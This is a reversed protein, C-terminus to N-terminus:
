TPSLVYKTKITLVSLISCSMFFYNFYLLCIRYLYYYLYLVSVRIYQFQISLYLIKFVIYCSFFYSIIRFFIMFVVHIYLNGFKNITIVLSSTSIEETVSFKRPTDAM